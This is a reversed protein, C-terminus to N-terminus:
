LRRGLRERANPSITKESILRHEWESQVHEFRLDFEHYEFFQNWSQASNAPFKFNNEILRELFEHWGSANEEFEEITWGDPPAINLAVSYRHKEKNRLLADWFTDFDQDQDFPEYERDRISLVRREKWLDRLSEFDDKRDISFYHYDTNTYGQISGAWKRDFDVVVLGYGEPAFVAAPERKWDTHFQSSKDYFSATTLECAASKHLVRTTIRGKSRIAFAVEGGM